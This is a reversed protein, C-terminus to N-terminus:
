CQCDEGKRYNKYWSLIEYQKLKNYFTKREVGLKSAIENITKSTRVAEKIEDVSLYIFNNHTGQVIREKSHHKTHEGTTSFVELNEPRNDLKNGNLHHAVESKKIQRGLKEAAILRHEFVYGNNADPHFPLRIAWYGQRIIKGKWAHHKEGVQSKGLMRATERVKESVKRGRLAESRSRTGIGLKDLQRKVSNDSFGVEKAVDSLIMKKDWYLFKMKEIDKSSARKLGAMRIGGNM